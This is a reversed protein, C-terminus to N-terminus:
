EGLAHREKRSPAGGYLWRAFATQDNVLGDSPVTYFQRSSTNRDFMDDADRALLGGQFHREMDAQVMPDRADCPPPADTELRDRDPLEAISRNMFPNSRTPARCVEGDGGVCGMARNLALGEAALAEARARAATARAGRQHRHVVVSALAGIALLSLPVQPHEPDLALAILTAALSFRMAGNHRAETSTADTEGLPHLYAMVDPVILVSPDEYWIADNHRPKAVAATSAM